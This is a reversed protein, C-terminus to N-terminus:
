ISLKEKESNAILIASCSNTLVNVPTRFMDLIRDIALLIGISEAPLGLGKIVIIVSVLAASPVGAVGLSAIVTFIFITVQLSATLPIAYIQSIFLAAIFSFLASGAMNLSTGLPIVLSGIRNSVGINKEICDMTLPLTASSSSTSFATILASSMSKLFYWPHVKAFIKLILPLVIGGFILLAGLNIGFFFGLSFLTEIGTSSFQKAVLCFVGFPLFKMIIHTIYLMSQFISDWFNQLVSSNKIKSIAYGFIISFFILGLMNKGSFVDIINSPIIQLFLDQWPSKTEGSSLIPPQAVAINIAKATNHLMQKFFNAILAGTAIAAINTLLFTILIKMGIRGFFSENGIKAIGIIISSAVLPVVVLLLANIFLKGVTDYLLYTNIGLICTDVNSVSGVIIAAFIAVFIIWVSRAKKKM